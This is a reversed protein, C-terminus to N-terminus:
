LCREAYQELISESSALIKTVINCIRASVTPESPSNSNCSVDVMKLKLEFYAGFPKWTTLVVHKEESDNGALTDEISEEEEMTDQEENAPEEDLLPLGDLESFWQVVKNCAWGYKHLLLADQM